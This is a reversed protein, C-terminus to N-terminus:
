ASRGQNRPRWVAIFYALAGLFAGLFLAWGWAVAHREPRNRVFDVVMRVWFRLLLFAGVLAIVGVVPADIPDGLFLMLVRM